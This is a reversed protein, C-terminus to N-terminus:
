NTKPLKFYDLKVVHEDNFEPYMLAGETDRLQNLKYEWLTKFGMEQQIAMTVQSTNLNIIYKFGHQGAVEVM